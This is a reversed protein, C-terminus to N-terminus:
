EGKVKVLVKLIDIATKLQIDNMIDKKRIWHKKDKKKKEKKKEIKKLEAKLHNKLDKEKLEFKSEEDVPVKGPYVIVDPTIGVAQIIRGSPLYYKAITLKIASEKDLPIIAQVSAKGFSKEGVIIARKHDQLSGSVIESASASGGNILVVIPIKNDITGSKTAYYVIEKSKDRGRQIVIKGKDIFLDVVGVAQNLLGGPNNRLDLVIGKKNKYKKLIRRISEVVHQDFSSVRIYLFDTDEIEKAKVSKIKIIDRIIEVNFPKEEGKRVITLVVKTKPKGRMLKVAEDLTMDLTSKGDIRLIVRRKHLPFHTIKFRCM